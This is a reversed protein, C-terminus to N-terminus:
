TLFGFLLSLLLLCIFFLNAKHLGREGERMGVMMMTADYVMRICYVDSNEGTFTHVVKSGGM